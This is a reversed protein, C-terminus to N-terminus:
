VTSSSRIRGESPRWTTTLINDSSYYLFYSAEHRGKKISAHTLM